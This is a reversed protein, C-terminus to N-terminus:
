TRLSIRWRINRLIPGLRCGARGTWVADVDVRITPVINNIFIQWWFFKDLLLFFFFQIYRKLKFMSRNFSAFSDMDITEYNWTQKKTPDLMLGNICDFSENNYRNLICKSNRYLQCWRLIFQFPSFNKPLIVTSLTIYSSGPLNQIFCFYRQHRIGFSAWTYSFTVIFLWFKVM